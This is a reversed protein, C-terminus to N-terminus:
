VRLGNRAQRIFCDNRGQWGYSAGAVAGLRCAEAHTGQFADKQIEASTAKDLESAFMPAQRGCSSGAVAGLRCALLLPRAGLLVALPLAGGTSSRLASTPLSGKGVPERAAM